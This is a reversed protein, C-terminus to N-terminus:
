NGWSEFTGLNYQLVLSTYSSNRIDSSVLNADLTGVAFNRNGLAGAEGVIWLSGSVNLCVKFGAQIQSLKMFLPLSQAGVYSNREIHIQDGNARIIFGFHLERAEEYDIDMSFPLVLHLNVNTGLSCHTGFLPLLIGRDFTYSYSLGYIFAFSDDLQYKGLLSGTPRIQPRDLTNQDEAFGAEITLLYMHHRTTVIGGTVGISSTYIVNLSPLFSIDEDSSSFQGRAVLFYDTPGESTSTAYRYAPIEATLTAGTSGITGDLSQFDRVAATSFGVSLHSQLFDSALHDDTTGLQALAIVSVLFSLVSEILVIKKKMAQLASSEQKNTIADEWGEPM